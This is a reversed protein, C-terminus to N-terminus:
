GSRKFCYTQYFDPMWRKIWINVKQPHKNMLKAAENVWGYKSFDINSNLIKEINKKNQESLQIQRPSSVRTKKKKNRGCFNDTQGHCNRCLIRLNSLLHNTPNGDIHDLELPISKGNWESNNCIVCKAELINESILRVRLKATAYRPYQGSLIDKTQIKNSINYQIAGNGYSIFHSIDLEFLNIYYNLTRYSSNSKNHIRLMDLCERRSKCKLVIQQLIEKSIENKKM